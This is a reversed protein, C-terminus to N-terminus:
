IGGGEVRHRPAQRLPESPGRPACAGGRLRRAHPQLAPERRVQPALGREQEYAEPLRPLPLSAASKSRITANDNM